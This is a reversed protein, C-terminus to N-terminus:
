KARGTSRMSSLWGNWAQLRSFWYSTVQVTAPPPEGALGARHAV